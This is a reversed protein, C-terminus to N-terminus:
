QNYKEEVIICRPSGSAAKISVAGEWGDWCVGGGYGADVGTDAVLIDTFVTTSAGTGKYVYLKTTGLNKITVRIRDGSSLKDGDSTALTHNALNSRVLGANRM